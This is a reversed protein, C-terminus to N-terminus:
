YYVIEKAANFDPNVTFKYASIAIPRFQCPGIKNHASIVRFRQYSHLSSSAKPRFFDCISKLLFVYKCALLSFKKLNAYLNLMNLGTVQLNAHLGRSLLNPGVSHSLSQAFLFIKLRM